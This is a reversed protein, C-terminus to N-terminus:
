PAAGTAPGRLPCGFVAQTTETAPSAWRQVATRVARAGPSDGLEGRALTLGGSFRLAGASDYVVVHGSTEAAFARHLAGDVDLVVEVGALARARRLVPGDGGRADGRVVVYARVPGLEPLVRALEALSALTCTCEPHVLMVLTAHERDLELRVAPWRAAVDGPDGSTTKYAWLERAGAGLGVIAVLVTAAFVLM